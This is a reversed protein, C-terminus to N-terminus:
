VKKPFKGREYQKPWEVKVGLEYAARLPWYPDRLLARALFIVDARGEALIREAQVSDTILGVAGTLIGAEKRIAEAFPVQYGLVSPIPAKAINGGSSCDILDVGLKKLERALQVSQGLDWGGEVWDSASIRAFLPREAPWVARVAKAVELPFRLRNELSGGYKDRRQNSLPSLFEHFLYGHAMHLEVVDFGARSSREASSVFQATIAGIEAGSLERPAPYEGFPVASPGDTIWAGEEKLLPAGNKVWSVHTSGKRGAHALQIGACAGQERVFTAIRAFSKEQEDSWLGTDGPSIRGVNSVGTAEAMVLGAGGVARSGLHVLHWEGPVGNKASYQCMPSVFVRNRFRAGRISLPDFLM